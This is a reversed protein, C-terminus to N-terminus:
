RQRGSAGGARSGSFVRDTLPRALTDGFVVGGAIAVVVVTANFIGAVGLLTTYIQPDM